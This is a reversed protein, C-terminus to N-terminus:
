SENETTQSPPIPGSGSVRHNSTTQSAEQDEVESIFHHCDCAEFGRVDQAFCGYGNKHKYRHHGCACILPSPARPPKSPKNSSWDISKWWWGLVFGLVFTFVLQGTM